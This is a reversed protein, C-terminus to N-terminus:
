SKRKGKTSTPAIKRKKAQPPDSRDTSTSSFDHGRKKSKVPTTARVTAPIPAAPLSHSSMTAEKLHQRHSEARDAAECDVDPRQLLELMRASSRSLSPEVDKLASDLARQTEKIQEQLIQIFERDSLDGQGAAIATATVL